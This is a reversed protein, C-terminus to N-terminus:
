PYPKINSAGMCGVIEGQEAWAHINKEDYSCDRTYINHEGPIPKTFRLTGSNTRDYSMYGNLVKGREARVRWVVKVETARPYRRLLPSLARLAVKEQEKEAVWGIDVAVPRRSRVLYNLPLFLVVPMALLTLWLWKRRM